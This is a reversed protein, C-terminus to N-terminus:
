IVLTTSITITTTTFTIATATTSATAAAAASCHQMAKSNGSNNSSSSINSSNSNIKKRSLACSSTQRKFLNLVRREVSDIFMPLVDCNEPWSSARKQWCHSSRDCLELQIVADNEKCRRARKITARRQCRLVTTDIKKPTSSNNSMTMQYSNTSVTAAPDSNTELHAASTEATTVRAEGIAIVDNAPQQQQQPQQPPQQQQNRQKQHHNRGRAMFIDSLFERSRQLTTSRQKKNSSNSSSNVSEEGATNDKLLAFNGLSLRSLRKQENSEKSQRRYIVRNETETQTKTNTTATTTNNRKTNIDDADIVTGAIQLQQEANGNTPGIRKILGDQREQGILQGDGAHQRSEYKAKANAIAAENQSGTAHGAALAFFVLLRRQPPLLMEIMENMENRMMTLLLLLLRQGRRQRRM